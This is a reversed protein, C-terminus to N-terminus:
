NKNETFPNNLYQYLVNCGEMFDEIRMSEHTNYSGGKNRVFIMGSPIAAKLFFVSYHGASSPMIQYPL